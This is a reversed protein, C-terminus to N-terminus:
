LHGLLVTLRVGYLIIYIAVTHMACVYANRLSIAWCMRGGRRADNSDKENENRAAAAVGGRTRIASVMGPIHMQIHARMRSM